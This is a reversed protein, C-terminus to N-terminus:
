QVSRGGARRHAGLAALEGDGELDATQFVADGGEIVLPGPEQTVGFRDIEAGGPHDALLEQDIGGQVEAAAM